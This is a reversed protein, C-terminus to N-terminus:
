VYKKILKPATFKSKWIEIEYYDDGEDDVVTELGFSSVRIRYDTKDLNIELQTEYGTCDKIQFKGSPIKLSAEIIHSAKKNEIPKEDLIKLEANVNGYTAITVGLIGEGIALKRIGAEDNWFDPADIKGESQSDLIYFQYYESSFKLQHTKM